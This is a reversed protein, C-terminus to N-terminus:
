KKIKEFYQEAYNKNNKKDYEQLVLYCLDYSSYLDNLLIALKILKNSSLKDLEMFNKIYVADSWLAQSMTQNIDNNILFPKFARGCIGTFKHFQFDSERLIKDVDAFLPQNKYLQIFEVETHVLIASDLIKSANKFIDFEAGQVDIKLFDIDGIIDDLDDLRKTEVETINVVQMLNGLNQFKNILKINPQYLSSTMPVNTEYFMAKKGDGIIYPLFTHKPAFKENLINCEVKNPEFGIVKCIDNEILKKYINDDDILMAGVDLINIEPKEINELLSLLEFM